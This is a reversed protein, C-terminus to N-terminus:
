HVQFKPSKSLKEHAILHCWFHGILWIKQRRLHALGKTYLSPYVEPKSVMSVSSIRRMPLAASHEEIVTLLRRDVLQNCELVARDCWRFVEFEVREHM